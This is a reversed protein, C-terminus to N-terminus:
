LQFLHQGQRAPKLGSATTITAVPLNQPPGHKVGEFKEDPLLVFNTNV